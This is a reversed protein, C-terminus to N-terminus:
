PFPGAFRGWTGTFVMETLPKRIRAGLERQKLADDLGLLNEAQYGIAFATVADHTTPIQFLERAALPDFGAMPHCALGQSQAQLILNQTALGVDHYAHRNPKGNRSFDLRTCSIALCYARQAWVRNAEVLCSAMRGFEEPQDQTAVLFVWPQENYSSPAWRAAEFLSGLIAPPIRKESFALPSWRQRILDALPFASEVPKDM